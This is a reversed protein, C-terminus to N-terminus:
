RSSELIETLSHQVGSTWHPLRLHYSSQLRSTDLRSNLPRKAACTFEDSKIAVIKEPQIKLNANQKIAVEFIYRAYAHWSTTGSATLHFIGEAKYQPYLSLVQATVDAILEAGTPNGYQDSIVRLEEKEKGLRLMTKIFNNGRAAYVWSTRFIIHRCGSSIIAQEGMLKSLGYNNLPATADQERWPAEGEGNFVYDTSYHIFLADIQKALEAIAAPASANILHSLELELEAKDVATYAAANVIVSPRQDLITARIGALNALDGCLVSHRDLAILEGLPALSRALEWGVQGNKGLLLIKM